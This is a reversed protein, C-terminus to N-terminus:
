QQVKRHKITRAKRKPLKITPNQRNNYTFQQLYHFHGIRNQTQQCRLFQVGALLFHIPNKGSCTWFLYKTNHVSNCMTIVGAGEGKICLSIYFFYHLICIQQM